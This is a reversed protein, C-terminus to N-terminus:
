NLYINSGVVRVEGKAEVEVDEESAIKVTGGKIAVQPSELTIAEDAKLELRASEMRLIPGRDTLEIRVEIVGSGSRIEVLDHGGSERVVLKRGDRLYVEREAHEVSAASEEHLKEKPSGAM